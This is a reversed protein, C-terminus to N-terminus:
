LVLKRYCYITYTRILYLKQIIKIEKFYYTVSLEVAHIDANIYDILSMDESDM